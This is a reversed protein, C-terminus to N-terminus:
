GRRAKGLGSVSLPLDRDQPPQLNIGLHCGRWCAPPNLLCPGLRLCAIPGPCVLHSFTNAPCSLHHLGCCRPEESAPGLHAWRPPPRRVTKRRGSPIDSCPIEEEGMFFPGGTLPLESGGGFALAASGGRVTLPAEGARRRTSIPSPPSSADHIWGRDVWILAAQRHCARSQEGVVKWM